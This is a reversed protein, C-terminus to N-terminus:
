NHKNLFYRGKRLIPSEIFRYSLFSILITLGFVFLIALLQFISYPMLDKFKGLIFLVVYISVSHYMYIGYSRRGLYTTIKNELGFIRNTNISVNIILWGFLLSMILNELLVYKYNSYYTTFYALIVLFLLAQFVRNRFVLLKLITDKKYAVFYALIGGLAMHYFGLTNIFKKFGSSVNFFEYHNLVQALFSLLFVFVISFLVRSKSIKILPAWFIYFQEEVAISWTVNLIGGVHFFSSMINAGFFTYLLVGFWKNYEVEFSFGLHPLLYWYFILGFTVVIFYVPWIRFVRKLYFNKISISEEVEKEKLLIYTILFGSLVFFFSVAMSGKLFIPWKPLTPLLQTLESARIHFLVVLAAAFFRLTDLGSFYNVFKLQDIKKDKKIEM